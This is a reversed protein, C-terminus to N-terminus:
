SSVGKSPEYEIEIVKVGAERALKTMNATGKGGPFAIVLDPKGEDLMQQNRLPGAGRGYQDWKAPFRKIQVWNVVAWTDALHDVGPADGHIITVDFLFNGYSDPKTRPFCEFAIEEM